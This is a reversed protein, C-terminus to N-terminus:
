LGLVWKAAFVLLAAALICGMFIDLAWELPERYRNGM